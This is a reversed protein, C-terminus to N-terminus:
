TARSPLSKCNDNLFYLVESGGDSLGIIDIKADDKVMKKVVENFIYEVHNRWNENGPVRNKVDDIRVSGHVATKRPLADWTVFSVAQKGKRWWLLQGLNAIIVGPPSPDTASAQYNELAKVFEVASGHTISGPAAKSVLRYAWIGLDQVAENFVIIVRDKQSLNASALIPIHPKDPPTGLPLRLTPVGLDKLRDLVIQRLCVLTKSILHYILFFRHADCVTCPRGSSRTIGTM